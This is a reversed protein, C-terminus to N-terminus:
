TTDSIQPGFKPHMVDAFTRDIRQLKKLDFGVQKFRVWLDRLGPAHRRDYRSTHTLAVVRWTRYLLDDCLKAVSASQPLLRRQIDALELACDIRETSFPLSSVRSCMDQVMETLDESRATSGTISTPMESEIIDALKRCGAMASLTDRETPNDEGRPISRAMFLAAVMREEISGIGNYDLLGEYLQQARSIDGVAVLAKLDESSAGQGALFEHRPKSKVYELPALRRAVALTYDSKVLPMLPKGRWYCEYLPLASLHGGFEVAQESLGADLLATFLRIRPTDDLSSYGKHDNTNEARRFIASLVRLHDDLGNGGSHLIIEAQSTYIDALAHWDCTAEPTYELEAVSEGLRTLTYDDIGSNRDRVEHAFIEWQAPLDLEDFCCHMLGLDHTASAHDAVAMYGKRRESSSNLRPLTAAAQALYGYPDPDRMCLVESLSVRPEAITEPSRTM